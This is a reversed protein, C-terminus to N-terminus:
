CKEVCRSRRRRADSHRRRGGWSVQVLYEEQKPAMPSKSQVLEDGTKAGDQCINGVWGCSKADNGECRRGVFSKPGWHAPLDKYCGLYKVGTGEYCNEVVSTCEPVCNCKICRNQVSLPKWIGIGKHMHKEPVTICEKARNPPGAKKTKWQAEEKPTGKQWPFKAPMFDYGAARSLCEFCTNYGTQLAADAHFGSIGRRRSSKCAALEPVGPHFIFAALDDRNWSTKIINGAGRDFSVIQGNQNVLKFESNKKCYPEKPKV